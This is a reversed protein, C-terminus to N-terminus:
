AASRAAASGASAPTGAPARGPAEASISRCLAMTWPLPTRVEVVEFYSDLLQLFARRSWHQIHGPTNGLRALYKGRALNLVRWIPERPVSVILHGRVVRRLARLAEDPRELHELVECCVVLDSGDRDPELDYISRVDFLEEPYGQETANQRALRIVESSFDSGRAKIGARRWHLVWYGEGCGIEHVSGPAARAVLDSLACHFGRMLWRVVPNRSGYKDYVNGVVVGRERIGASIRM